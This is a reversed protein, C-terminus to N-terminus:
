GHMPVTGVPVFKVGCFERIAGPPIGSLDHFQGYNQQPFGRRIRTVNVRFEFPSDGIVRM